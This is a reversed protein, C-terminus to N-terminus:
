KKLFLKKLNIIDEVILDIDYLKYDINKLFCIINNKELEDYIILIKKKIM